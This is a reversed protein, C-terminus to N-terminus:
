GELDRIMVEEGVVGNAISTVADRRGLKGKNHDYYRTIVISALDAKREARRAPPALLVTLRDAATHKAGDLPM